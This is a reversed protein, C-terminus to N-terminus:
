KLILNKELFLAKPWEASYKDYFEKLIERGLKKYREKQEASEYWEDVWRGKYIELFEDLSIKIKKNNEEVEGFLNTQGLGRKENILEFLRQLTSHM